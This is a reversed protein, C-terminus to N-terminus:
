RSGSLKTKPADDPKSTSRVGRITFPGRERFQPLREAYVSWFIVLVVALYVLGLLISSM